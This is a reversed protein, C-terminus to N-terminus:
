GEARLEDIWSSDVEIILGMTRPVLYDAVSVHEPHHHTLPGDGKRLELGALLESYPASPGSRDAPLSLIPDKSILFDQLRDHLANMGALSDLLMPYQGDTFYIRM